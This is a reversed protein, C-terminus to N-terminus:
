LLIIMYYITLVITYHITSVITYHITPVITYHITHVYVRWHERGNDLYFNRELGRATIETPPNKQAGIETKTLRQIDPMQALGVRM